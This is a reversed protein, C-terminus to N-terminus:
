DALGSSMNCLCLGSSGWSEELDACIEDGCTVGVELGCPGHLRMTEKGRTSRQSHGGIDHMCVGVANGWYTMPRLASQEVLDMEKRKKSIVVSM